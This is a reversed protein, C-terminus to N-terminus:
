AELIEILDTYKYYKENKIDYIYFLDVIKSGVYKDVYNICDEIYKTIAYCISKNDEVYLLEYNDNVLLENLKDFNSLQKM